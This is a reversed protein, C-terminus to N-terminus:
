LTHLPPARLPLSGLPAPPLVHPSSFLPIRTLAYPCTGEGASVHRLDGAGEEDRGADREAREAGGCAATRAARPPGDKSGCSAHSRPPSPADPGLCRPPVVAFPVPGRRSQHAGDCGALSFIEAMLAAKVRPWLAGYYGMLLRAARRSRDCPARSCARATCLCSHPARCGAAAAHASLFRVAPSTVEPRPRLASCSRRLLPLRPRSSSARPPPAAARPALTACARLGASKTSTSCQKLITAVPSIKQYRVARARATARARAGRAIARRELARRSVRGDGRRVLTNHTHAYHYRPRM